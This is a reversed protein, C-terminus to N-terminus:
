GPPGTGRSGLGRKQAIVAPAVAFVEADAQSEGGSFLGHSRSTLAAASIWWFTEM